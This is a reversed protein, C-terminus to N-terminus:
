LWTFDNDGGYNTCGKEISDMLYQHSEIANFDNMRIKEERKHLQDIAYLGSERAIRTWM